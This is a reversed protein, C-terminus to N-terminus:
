SDALEAAAQETLGGELTEVFHRLLRMFEAADDPTFADLQRRRARRSKAKATILLERGRQTISLTKRRRDVKDQRRVVLGGRELKTMVLTMTSRDLKAINAVSIQDSDPTAEIVTLVAFQSSTIGLSGFEENLIAASVQHARRILFGPRLKLENTVNKPM